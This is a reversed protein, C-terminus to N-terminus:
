QYEGALHTALQAWDRLRQVGHPLTEIERLVVQYHCGRLKRMGEDLHERVQSLDDPLTVEAASQRWMICHSDGCAAIVRDLDTWASCVFVRLNPIRLVGEIKTTLDECCGYQTLGFQQLIPLQYHLCFEEWMAPSVEDFEQSNAALWLHHLRIPGDEPPDNIPDSCCMGGHNNPTLLGTEEVARLARLGAECLKAMLRHILHPTLKMDLMMASLGRLQDAYVNVNAGLPPGCVLRVPLIDGLLEDMRSLARQTNEENHSYTPVTVREFDAETEIPPEYRWGGLDTSEALQQVPMGWTHETDRDFAAAVPWWPEILHDDGIWDKMLEQRLRYEVSRCLADECELTDQPLLETWVGAPRCWVPARDPRRLANVDRWRRRRQEMEPGAALEAVKQALERM